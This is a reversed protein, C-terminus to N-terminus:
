VDNEDGQHPPLPLSMWHTVVGESVAVASYDGWNETNEYWGQKMFYYDLEESYEDDDNGDFTSEERWRELYHGVIVRQKGYDNTFTALVNAGHSPLADKVSIWEGSGYIPCTVSPAEQIPDVFGTM